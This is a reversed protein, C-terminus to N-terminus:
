NTIHLGVPWFPFRLQRQRITINQDVLGTSAPDLLITGGGTASLTGPTSYITAFSGLSSLDVVSNPDTVTVTSATSVTPYRALKSLDLNSGGSVVFPVGYYTDDNDYNTVGELNLSARDEVNVRHRGLRHDRWISLAARLTISGNTFSQLKEFQHVRADITLEVGGFTTTNSPLTITGGNTATLSGAPIRRAGRASIRCTSWSNQGDASVNLGYWSQSPALNALDLTGGRLASFEPALLQQRYVSDVALAAAPGGSSVMLNSGDVDTLNTLNAATISSAWIEIGGNTIATFQGSPFNEANDLTVTM